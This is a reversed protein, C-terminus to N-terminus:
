TNKIDPTLPRLSRPLPRGGPTTAGSESPFFTPKELLGMGHLRQYQQAIWPDIAADLKPANLIKGSRPDVRVSSFNMGATDVQGTTPNYGKLNQAGEPLRGSAGGSLYRLFQGPTTAANAMAGWGAYRPNYRLESLHPAYWSNSSPNSAGSRQGLYSAGEMAGMAGLGGLGLTTTPAHRLATGLSQAGAPVGKRFAYSLADDAFGGLASFLRNAQKETGARKELAATARGLLYLHENLGPM